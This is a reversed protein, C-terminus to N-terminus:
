RTVTGLSKLEVGSRFKQFFWEGHNRMVGTINNEDTMAMSDMVNKKTNAERRKQKSKLELDNRTSLVVEGGVKCFANLCTLVNHEVQTSIVSNLVSDCIVLDFM